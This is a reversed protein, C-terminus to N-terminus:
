DSLNITTLDLNDPININKEKFMNVVTKIYELDSKLTLELDIDTQKEEIAQDRIMRIIESSSVPPNAKPGEKFDLKPPVELLKQDDKNNFPEEGLMILIENATPRNELSLPDMMDIIIEKYKFENSLIERSASKYLEEIKEKSFGIPNYLVPSKRTILAYFTQGLSFIDSKYQATKIKKLFFLPDIYRSTGSMSECPTMNERIYVTCGVGLDVLKVEGNKTIMINAPKIDRHIIGHSHIFALAKVLEVFYKELNKNYTKLTKSNYEYEECITELDKGDVYEMIINLSDQTSVFDYFCTIQPFCKPYKSLLKLINVESEVLKKQSDLDGLSQSRTHIITKVAVNMKKEIWKGKWVSGFAGGGLHQKTVSYSGGEGNLFLQESSM